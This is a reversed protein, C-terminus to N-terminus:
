LLLQDDLLDHAEVVEFIHTIKGEGALGMIEPFKKIHILPFELYRCITLLEHIKISDEPQVLDSIGLMYDASVNFYVTLRILTEISMSLKDKEVRSVTQQSTGIEDALQEQILNRRKRLEKLKGDAKLLDEVSTKKGM